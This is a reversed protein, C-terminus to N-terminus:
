RAARAALYAEVDRLDWIRGSKLRVIPEPLDGWQCVAGPTVGAMAAFEAVGCLRPPGGAPDLLGADHLLRHVRRAQKETAGDGLAHRIRGVGVVM